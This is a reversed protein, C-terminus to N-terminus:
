YSAILGEDLSFVFHRRKLDQVLSYNFTNGLLYTNGFSKPKPDQKM